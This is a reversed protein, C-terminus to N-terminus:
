VAGGNLHVAGGNAFIINFRMFVLRFLSSEVTFAEDVLGSVSHCQSFHANRVVGKQGVGVLFAMGLTHLGLNLTNQGLIVRLHYSTNQGTCRCAACPM